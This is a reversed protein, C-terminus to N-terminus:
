PQASGGGQEYAAIEDLLRFVFERDERSLELFKVDLSLSLAGGSRLRVTRSEAAAAPRAPAHRPAARRLGGRRTKKRLPLSM